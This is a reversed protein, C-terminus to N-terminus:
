VPQRPVQNCGAGAMAQAAGGGLGNGMQAEATGYYHTAFRAAEAHGADASVDQGAAKLRAKNTEALTM